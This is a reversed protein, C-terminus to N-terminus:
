LDDVDQVPVAGYEVPKGTYSGNPDTRSPPQAIMKEVVQQVRMKARADLPATNSANNKDM